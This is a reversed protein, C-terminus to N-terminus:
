TRAASALTELGAVVCALGFSYRDDPRGESMASLHDALVPYPKGRVYDRMDNIAERRMPWTVEKAAFGAVYNVVVWFAHDLAAGTFGARTLATLLFEQGLLYPVPDRLESVHAWCVPRDLHAKGAKVELGLDAREVVTRLPVTRLTM